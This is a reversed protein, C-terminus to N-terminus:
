KRNRETIIMTFTEQPPDELIRYEIGELLSLDVSPYVIKGPGIATRLILLTSPPVCELFHEVVLRAEHM